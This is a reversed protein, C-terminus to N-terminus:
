WSKTVISNLSDSFNSGNYTKGYRSSIASASLTTKLIRVNSIIGKYYEGDMGTDSYPNAGAVFPATSTKINTSVDTSTILTGDHYLKMTTGDYTGVMIHWDNLSAKNDSCANKYGSSNTDYLNFCPEGNWLFLGFGAGEINSIIQAANSIYEKIRYRAIITVNNSFSRNALGLSAYDSTGNFYRGHYTSNKTLKYSNNNTSVKLLIYNNSYSSNYTKGYNSTIVSDSLAEDFVIADAIYGSFFGSDSAATGSSTPNAGIMFGATSPTIVDTCSVSSVLNGDLYLKITSGNYVGVATHWTDLSVKSPTYAEVYKGASKSYMNFYLVGNYLTLGGGADEWNGIIDAGHSDYNEIKFRAVLTIAKKFDYRDMDLYIYDTQGNFYEGKVSDEYKIKYPSDKTGEGTTIITDPNLYLTPIIDMGYTSVGQNYVNGSVVTFTRLPTSSTYHTLLRTKTSVNSDFITKIWNNNICNTNSGYAALTSNCLTNGNRGFEAAYGYDSAYPIAIKGNWSTSNGSYVSTGRENAYMNNSYISSTSAGGLSWTTESIMNRTTDNKIGTSTFNCSGTAADTDTYCTGSGSNYYLSGDTGTYGQNLLKMLDTAPWNNTSTSSYAYSGISENRILKIKGDFVGVIRWLECTSSTPNSYDSCNFYIYNDPSAGYYRINGADIGTSSSGKRDNMLLQSQSTNYTISNNIVTSKETTSYLKTIYSAANTNITREGLVTQPILTMNNALVISNKSSAVGLTVIKKESSNNRLVINSTTSGGAEKIVGTTRTNTSLIGMDVDTIDNIYWISYNIDSVTGSNIIITQSLTKYPEIEVEFTEMVDNSSTLNSSITIPDSIEASTTFMAYTSGVALGILGISIIGILYFTKISIKKM